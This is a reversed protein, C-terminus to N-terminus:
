CSLSGAFDRVKLAVDDLHQQQTLGSKKRPKLDHDGDEIWCLQVAPSFAM